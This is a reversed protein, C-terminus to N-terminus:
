DKKPVITGNFIAPDFPDKATTQPEPKAQSTSSEGFATKTPPKSTEGMSKPLDNAPMPAAEDPIVALDVWAELSQFAPADRDRLPPHTARGHVTVAKELLPSTAPDSKKLQKLTAALNHLSAKRDGGGSVGILTYNGGQGTTHCRACANM